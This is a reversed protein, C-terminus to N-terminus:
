QLVGPTAIDMAGGPYAPQAGPENAQPNEQNNAGEGGQQAPDTAPDGTGPQAAALKGAMANTATISPLGAIYLTEMDMDCLKAYKEALPEPSVGPLQILYPAARELKALDAAQNPRGSSGARITLNLDKAIMERTMPHEPWVAGPGVVEKVTDASLEKMMLQGTSKALESLFDDLEDIQDAIGTQHSQEAISTETATGGSVGGLNAEQTGVARLTDKYHEEVQYQNPDIGIMEMRQLKDGIKEGSALGQLEVISHAPASTLKMKDEDELASAASVYKPRNANRHERLGQRARNYEHQPHRMLWVDSPPYVEGDDSEVENFVLAHITWFREIEVDPCYPEKIFDPYGECVVFCMQQEIDWVEYLRACASDSPVAHTARDAAMYRTYHNKLDVKYTELVEEPDFDGLKHAYWRAGTFTKLHRVKPDIIIEDSRPFDFIPGERVVIEEKAQLDKLSLQLEALDASGEEYGREESALKLRAEIDAIKSTIDQIGATVEPNKKMARQFGLKVFGVGNIKTRRVLAKMQSKFNAKQEGTFYDWMMALTDGLRSMMLEYQKAAQIEEMILMATPDVPPPPPVAVSMTGTAAANQDVAGQMQQHQAAMQVQMQMQQTAQQLSAQSGDWVTYMLKKRPTAEVRPDKAYLASVMTNVHRPILPVTYSDNDLWDKKAGDRALQRCDKMRKFTKEWFKEAQRIKEIWRTVLKERGPEVEPTDDWTPRPESVAAQSQTADVMETDM